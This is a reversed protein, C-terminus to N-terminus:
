LYKLLIFIWVKCMQVFTDVTYAVKIHLEFGAVKICLTIDVLILFVATIIVTVQLAYINQQKWYMMYMTM